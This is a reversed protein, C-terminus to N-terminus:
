ILGQRRACEETVAVVTGGRLVLTVGGNVNRPKAVGRIMTRAIRLKSGDTRDLVM